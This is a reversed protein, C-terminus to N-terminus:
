QRELLIATGMGGAGAVAAVGYRGNRQELASMLHLVNMAGSCGYPHGYALGGGLSNYKEMHDGYNREFLVDIVAFAENWEVADIADMSLNNKELLAETSRWAGEPSYRPDGSWILTDVIRFPGPTLSLGVFAAGDHTFCTNGATLLHSGELIFPMRNLLKSSIRARISEDVFQKDLVKDVSTQSSLNERLLPALRSKLTQEEVIVSHLVDKEKAEAALTHSRLAHRDLESKTMSYRLGVAEAGEIMTYASNTHPSFQAVMYSGDRSDREDYTRLPQLSSSEIGGALIYEAQGSLLARYGQIIALGGSACQMDLTYAPTKMGYSSYLSMLRGINGGTGVANGCIIEDAKYEREFLENLLAAGLLEPRIYKYQGNYVGIPTRLGGMTYVQATTNM